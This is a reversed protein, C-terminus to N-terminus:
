IIHRHSDHFVKNLLFAALAHKDALLTPTLASPINLVLDVASILRHGVKNVAVFTM